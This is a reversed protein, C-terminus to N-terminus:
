DERSAAQNDDEKPQIDVYLPIVDGNVERFAAVINHAQVAITLLPYKTSKILASEQTTGVIRATGIGGPVLGRPTLVKATYDIIDGAQLLAIDTKQM